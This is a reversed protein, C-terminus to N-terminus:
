RARVERYIMLPTMGFSTAPRGLLTRALPGVSEVVSTLNFQSPVYLKTSSGDSATDDPLADLIGLMRWQGQVKTGHKLFLSSASISLNDEALVSWIQNEGAILNAHISQPLISLMPLVFDTIQMDTGPLKVSQAKMMNNIAPIEIMKNAISIDTINLVGSVDVFDGIRATRIDVKIYNSENLVRLLKRAHTWLPDYSFQATDTEVDAVEQNLTGQGKAILPIAGEASMGTKTTRTQVVSETATVNHTLGYIEFQALFSGIRRADHYIFDIIDDNVEASPPELVLDEITQVKSSKTPADKSVRSNM